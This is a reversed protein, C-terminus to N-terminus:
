NGLNPNGQPGALGTLAAGGVGSILGGIMDGTDGGIANGVAGGILNAAGNDLLSSGIDSGINSWDNSVGATLFSNGVDGIM